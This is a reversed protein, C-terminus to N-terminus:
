QKNKGYVGLTWEFDKYGPHITVEGSAPNMVATFEQENAKLHVVAFESAGSPSFRIVAKGDEVKGIRTTVDTFSVDAILKREKALNPFELPAALRISSGPDAFIFEYFLTEVPRNQREDEAAFEEELSLREEEEKKKARREREGKTRLNELYDVQRITNDTQPVERRVYYSNEDLNLVLRYADGRALAENYLFEWTDVFKRIDGKLKWIQISEFRTAALTSILAILLIVLVLEVLTFGKHKRLRDLM